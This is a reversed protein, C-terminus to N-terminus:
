LSGYYKINLKGGFGTLRIPAIDKGISECYKVTSNKEQVM